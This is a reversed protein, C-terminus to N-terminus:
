CLLALLYPIVSSYFFIFVLNSSFSIAILVESAVLADSKM